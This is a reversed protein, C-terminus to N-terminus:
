RWMGGGRMGMRGMGMRGFGAEGDFGGMCPGFGFGAGDASFMPMADINENMWAIREELQEQTIVGDAVLQAMHGAAQALMVQQLTELEVGQAEALEALSQGNAMADFLADVELGLADAIAEMGPHGDENWMMGYGFNGGHMNYMGMGGRGRMMGPGWQTEDTQHMWGPGWTPPTTEDDDSQAAVVFVGSAITLAIALLILINRKM